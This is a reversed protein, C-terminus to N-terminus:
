GLKLCLKASFSFNTTVFGISDLRQKAFATEACCTILLECGPALYFFVLGSVFVRRLFGQKRWLYDSLVRSFSKEHLGSTVHASLLHQPNKPSVCHFFIWLHIFDYYNAASPFFLKFFHDAELSYRLWVMKWCGLRRQIGGRGNWAISHADRRGSRKENTCCSSFKPPTPM